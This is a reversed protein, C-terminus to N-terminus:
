QQETSIDEFLYPYMEDEDLKKLEPDPEPLATIPPPGGLGLDGPPKEFDMATFFFKEAGADRAGRIGILLQAANLVPEHSVFAEAETVWIPRDIGFEALMEAYPAVNFTEIDDNSICHVNAIDFNEIVGPIAFLERYFGLFEENGGAAAAILVTANADAARIAPTTVNLLSAYAQPGGVFFQMRIPPAPQAPQGPGDPFSSVFQVPDQYGLDPENLVEWHTVPQTLGEMDDEGDGDYREVVATLWDVYAQERDPACRNLGLEATFVDSEVTCGESNEVAWDAFPWLTVLLQVDEEQAAQVIDDTDSFDIDADASAQMKWWVFPGPHPRVWGAGMKRASRMENDQRNVPGGTLFGFEDYLPARQEEITDELVHEGINKQRPSEERMDMVQMTAYVAIGIAFIAAIGVIGWVVKM